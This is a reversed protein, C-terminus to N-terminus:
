VNKVFRVPIDISYGTTAGTIRVTSDIHYVSVGEFMSTGGLTTFLYTSQQLDLSSKLKLSLRTGRPGEIPTNATATTDVTTIKEVFAPDTGLSLYYSAVNDDDVYSPQATQGTISVVSALRNDLEIIYQREVLDASLGTKPAIASTDLGQDIIMASGNLGVGRMTGNGLVYVGGDASFKETDEDTTVFFTGSANLTTGPLTQNLKLIPLFLINTRPITLLKSKMASTNNTFAELIPTQLIELDYYASGNAHSKNYLGYNIEDDGLAFKVIKFSGDAKALLERGADTLVADLIIDGSNDLFGM